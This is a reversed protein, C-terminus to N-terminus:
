KTAKAPASATKATGAQGSGTNGADATSTEAPKNNSATTDASPITATPTGSPTPVPETSVENADTGDSKGGKITDQTALAAGEAM